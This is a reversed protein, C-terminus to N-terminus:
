RSPAGNMRKTRGKLSPVDLQYDMEYKEAQEYELWDAFLFTTEIIQKKLRECYGSVL